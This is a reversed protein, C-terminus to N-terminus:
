STACTMHFFIYNMCNNYRLTGIKRRKKEILVNVVSVILFIVIVVRVSRTFCTYSFHTILANIYTKTSHPDPTPVRTPRTKIINYYIM